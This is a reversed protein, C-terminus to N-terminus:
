GIPVLLGSKSRVGRIREPACASFVYIEAIRHDLTGIIPSNTRGKIEGHTEYVPYFAVLKRSQKSFM